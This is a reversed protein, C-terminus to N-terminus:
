ATADVVKAMQDISDFLKETGPAFGDLNLQKLLARGEEDRAMDVLAQQMSLFDQRAISARAVFPPFGFEPSKEVIRTKTTLEPHLRSLTDWIYGDVAGGHALRAAVAEVVKRHAWTFFAKAFFENAREKAQVLRYAPFLYGSNSDPDSYAFVKGRLDLISRTLRDTSPVILYSQYLPKSKYLPVALLQLRGRRRVYTSGCVWACELKDQLLLQAIEGYSGRQIFSVPRQLRKQLYDRWLALFSVHDDLFVPTTGIRIPEAPKDDMALVPAALTATMSLLFNRRKMGIEGFRHNIGASVGHLPVNHAITKGAQLRQASRVVADL